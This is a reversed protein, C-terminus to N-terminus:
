STKQMWFSGPERTKDRRLIPFKSSILDWHNHKLFNLAGIVKFHDNFQLFSELLYQENWLRANDIIWADPYDKTTFIDHVHVIVGKKLSPLIQQIEFLVDGQPRIIHSSDIFLIDNADLAQFKELPVSEVRQTILNVPLETLPKYRFPEICTLECQMSADDSKNMSMAQLMMKTSYGSGIEIIKVPKFKRIACYLYEGDGSEFQKNNYYYENDSVKDTPIASLEDVYNFSKLISKQEDINLNLGGIMRDNRLSHLLHKQPAILPQDFHDHIPMVGVM